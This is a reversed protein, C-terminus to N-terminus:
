FINRRGDPASHFAVPQKKARKVSRDPLRCGIHVDDPAPKPGKELQAHFRTPGPSKGVGSLSTPGDGTTRDHACRYRFGPKPLPPIDRKQFVVEIGLVAVLGPGFWLLFHLENWSGGYEHDSRVTTHSPLPPQDM